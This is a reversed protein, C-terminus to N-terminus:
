CVGAALTDSWRLTDPTDFATALLLWTTGIVLNVGNCARRERRASILAPRLLPCFIGKKKFSRGNRDFSVSVLTPYFKGRSCDTTHYWSCFHLWISRGRSLSRLFLSS